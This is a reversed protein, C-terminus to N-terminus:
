GPPTLGTQRIFSFIEPLIKESFQSKITLDAIFQHRFWTEQRKAYQRTATIAGELAQDLTIKGMAHAALEPMGLARLLPRDPPLDRKLLAGVEALAGAVVMAQLRGAIAQRLAQRDPQLLITVFRLGPPPGAVAATQWESLPRGTAEVVELARLQRQRDGPKLRAAAPPDLRELRARVAQPGDRDWLARVRQRVADPIDPMPSLGQMLTRLYLGTGGVVVPLRAARRTDAIASLAMDRWLQASGVQEAPLVGYLLHPAAARDAASPQATLIPLADYLQMSDANIVTGHFEGAIALALASKGSATPGGIVIVPSEDQSAM